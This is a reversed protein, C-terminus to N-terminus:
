ERMKRFLNAIRKVTTKKQANTAAPAKLEAWAWDPGLAGQTM